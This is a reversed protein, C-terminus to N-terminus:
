AAERYDALDIVHDAMEWARPNHSIFFKRRYGGLALAARDMSYFQRKRDETLGDEAEDAFLCEYHVGAAEQHYLGVADRMAKDLWVTEGGSKRLISSEIGTEADIVSIDFTEVLKGNAQQRQTVIHCTFRPGYAEALLHNAHAAIAPGADEISLDIVGLLAAALLTWEAIEANIREVQQELTASQELQRNLTDREAQLAAIQANVQEVAQAAANANHEAQQLATAAAQVADEPSLPPLAAIEARIAQEAQQATANHQDLRQQLEAITRELEPAREAVARVAGIESAERRSTELRTRVNRIETDLAMVQERAAAHQTRTQRATELQTNLEAWRARQSDRQHEEEPLRDGAAIAEQLAPCDAYKGGGSCPM